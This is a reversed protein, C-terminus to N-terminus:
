YFPGSTDHGNVAFNMVVRVSVNTPAIGHISKFMFITPFYAKRDRIISLSLSKALEIGRCKIFNFNGTILRAAHNQIMQVLHINKQTVNM